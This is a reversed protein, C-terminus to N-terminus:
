SVPDKLCNSIGGDLSIISGNIFRAEKSALFLCLTAIDEPIGIKGTPHLKKLLQFGKKNNFFGDKLMKTDIAAPEVANIRIKSGLEISMAKTLGTLAAKSTSYVIFNSKTLKSHISSINIVSGNSLNLNKQFMQVLFFPALTNVKLTSLFDHTTIKDISKIIQIAANNIIIELINNGIIKIIKTKLIKSEIDNDIINTLNFLIFNNIYKIIKPKEIDIGIVSYGKKQFNSALSLGIAGSIGTIIVYKKKVM